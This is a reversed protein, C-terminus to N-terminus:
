LKPLFVSKPIGCHVGQRADVVQTVGFDAAVSILSYADDASLRRQQTLFKLMENAAMRMAANLDGSPPFGVDSPREPRSAALPVHDFGHTYWHSATELLPSGVSLDKRVILELWGNASAEIATGSLEGDGEAMHPDGVFFLAGENFVPYYMTAGPGVRWNDVNGGFEGPPVSNIRGADAPAVGMVGFHPRLPVVVDRLAPVRETTEPRIVVGAQTYLPTSTYDFAFVARASRTALDFMYITIREKKFVDYLYGWWAAINTGYALRPAMNLIRVELTDGPAAGEVYVPGTMVHVGPGRAAPPIADYVATTGPDMLLDPADGAQHTLTEVYLIDGSRMRLVPPLARDFFGWFCTSPTANLEHLSGPTRSEMM